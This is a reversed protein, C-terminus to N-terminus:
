CELLEDIDKVSPFNRNPDVDFIELYKKNNNPNDEDFMLYLALYFVNRTNNKEKEIIRILSKIRDKSSFFNDNGFTSCKYLYDKYEEVTSTKTLGTKLLLESEDKSQEFIIRRIKEAENLREIFDRAIDDCNNKPAKIVNAKFCDSLGISEKDYKISTIDRSSEYIYDMTTEYKEYNFEGFKSITGKVVYIENQSFHNYDLAEKISNFWHIHNEFKDLETENRIIVALRKQKKNKDLPPTQNM